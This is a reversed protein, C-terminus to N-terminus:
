RRVNTYGGEWREVDWNGNDKRRKEMGKRM